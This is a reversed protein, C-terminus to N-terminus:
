ADSKSLAPIPGIGIGGTESGARAAKEEFYKLRAEATNPLERAELGVLFDDARYSTASGPLERWVVVTCRNGDKDPCLERYM